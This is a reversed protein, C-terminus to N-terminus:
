VCLIKYFLKSQLIKLRTQDIKCPRKILKNVYKLIQIDLSLFNVHYDGVM